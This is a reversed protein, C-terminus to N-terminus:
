IQLLQNTFPAARQTTRPVSLDALLPFPQTLVNHLCITTNPLQDFGAPCTPSTSSIIQFYKFIPNASLMGHRLFRTSGSYMSLTILTVIAAAAIPEEPISCLVLVRSKHLSKKYPTQTWYLLERPFSSTLLPNYPM